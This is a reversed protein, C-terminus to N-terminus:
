AKFLRRGNPLPEPLLVFGFNQTQIVRIVTGKPVVHINVGDSLALAENLTQERWGLGIKPFNLQYIDIM